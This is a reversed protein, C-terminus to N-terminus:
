AIVFEPRADCADVINVAISIQKAGAHRELAEILLRGRSLEANVIDSSVDGAALCIRLM